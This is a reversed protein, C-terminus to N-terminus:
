RIPIRTPRSSANAPPISSSIARAKEGDHVCVQLRTVTGVKRQQDIGFVTISDSGRNSAYLYRGTKDVEIEAATSQGTFDSPLTSITQIPQLSGKERYYSFVVVSSGM